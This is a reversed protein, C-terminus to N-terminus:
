LKLNYDGMRNTKSQESQKKHRIAFDITDKYYDSRHHNNIYLIKYIPIVM